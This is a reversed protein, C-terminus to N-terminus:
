KKKTMLKTGDGLDHNCSLGGVICHEVFTDQVQRDWLNVAGAAMATGPAQGEEDTALRWKSVDADEAISWRLEMGVRPIAVPHSAPCVGWFSNGNSDDAVPSDTFTAMHAGEDLYLNEGDWCQPLRLWLILDKSNDCSPLSAFWQDSSSSGPKSCGWRVLRPEAALPDVDSEDVTIVLQAPPATITSADVGSRNYYITTTEPIVIEGNEDQLATVWYLSRDASGGPCTSGDSTQLQDIIDAGLGDTGGVEDLDVTATNGITLLNPSSGSLRCRMRFAGGWQDKSPENGQGISIGATSEGSSSSRDGSDSDAIVDATGDSTDDDSWGDGANDEMVWDDDGYDGGAGSDFEDADSDGDGTEFDDDGYSDDIGDVDFSDDGFDDPSSNDEDFLDDSFEGDDLDMWDDDTTEDADWTDSDDLESSEGGYGNGEDGDYDTDDFDTNNYDTDDFDTDLIESGGSEGVVVRLAPSNKGEKSDVFALQRNSSSVQVEFTVTGDQQLSERVLEGVALEVFGPEAVKANVQQDAALANLNGQPEPAETDESWEGVQAVAVTVSAPADDSYYLKLNAEEIPRGVFSSLDFRLFAHDIDNSALSMSQGPLLSDRDDTPQLEASLGSASRQYAEIGAPLGLLLGIVSFTM